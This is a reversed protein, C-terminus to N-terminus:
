FVRCRALTVRLLQGSRLLHRKILLFELLIIPAVLRTLETREFLSISLSAADRRPALLHPGAVMQTQTEELAPCPEDQKEAVPSRIEAMFKERRSKKFVVPANQPAATKDSNPISASAASADAISLSWNASM